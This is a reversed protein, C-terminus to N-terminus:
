GPLLAEQPSPMTSESSAQSSPLWVLPSPQTAPQRMTSGPKTQGSAPSGHRAKALHPSPMKTKGSCHSSPARSAFSPQEGVQLNSIPQVHSPEGLVQRSVTHPSP